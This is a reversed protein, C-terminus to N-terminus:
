LYFVVIKYRYDLSKPFFHHEDSTEKSYSFALILFGPATWTNLLCVVAVIIIALPASIRITFSIKLCLSILVVRRYACTLSLVLRSFYSCHKVRYYSNQSKIRVSIKKLQCIYFAQHYSPCRFDICRYYYFNRIFPVTFYSLAVPIQLNLM